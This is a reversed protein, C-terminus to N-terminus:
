RADALIADSGLPRGVQRKCHILIPMTAISGATAVIGWLSTERRHDGAKNPLLNSQL